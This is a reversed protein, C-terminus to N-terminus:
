APLCMKELIAELRNWKFPKNLYANAQYKKGKTRNREERSATLVIVPIDCTANLTRIRKLLGFGDMVPMMLDLIICAPIEQRIAQYAEEGHQAERVRYGNAVLRLCLVQRLEPEDEVVLVLPLERNM